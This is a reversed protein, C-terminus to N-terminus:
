RDPVADYNQQFSLWTVITSDMEMITKKMKRSDKYM